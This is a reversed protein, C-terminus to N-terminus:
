PQHLPNNPALPAPQPRVAACTSSTWPRRQTPSCSSSPARTVARPAGPLDQPPPPCSLHCPLRGSLPARCPTALARRRCGPPATLSPAAGLPLELELEVRKLRGPKGGVGRCRLTGAQAARSACGHQRTPADLCLPPPPARSAPAHVPKGSPILVRPFYPRSPIEPPRSTRSSTLPVRLPGCPVSAPARCRARARCPLVSWPV